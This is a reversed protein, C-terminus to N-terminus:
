TSKAFPFSSAKRVPPPLAAFSNIAV